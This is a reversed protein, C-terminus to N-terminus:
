GEGNPGLRGRLWYFLWLGLLTSLAGAGYLVALVPVAVLFELVPNCM